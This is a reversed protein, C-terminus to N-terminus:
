GKVADDVHGHLAADDLGKYGEDGFCRFCKGHHKFALHARDGFQDLTEVKHQHLHMADEAHHYTRAAIHEDYLHHSQEAAKKSFAEAKKLMADLADIVEKKEHAAKEMFAPHIYFRMALLDETGHHGRIAIDKEKSFLSTIWHWLSRVWSKIKPMEKKSLERDGSTELKWELEKAESKLASLAHKLDQVSPYLYLHFWDKATQSAMTFHSSKALKPEFLAITKGKHHLAYAKRTFMGKKELHIGKVMDWMRHKPDPTKPSIAQAEAKLGIVSLSALTYFLIFLNIKKM